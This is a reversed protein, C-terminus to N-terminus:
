SLLFQVVPVWVLRLLSILSLHADPPVHRGTFQTHGHTNRCTHVHANSEETESPGRPSPASFKLMQLSDPGMAM